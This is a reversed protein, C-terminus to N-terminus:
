TTINKPLTLSQSRDCVGTVTSRITMQEPSLSVARSYADILQEEVRDKVV